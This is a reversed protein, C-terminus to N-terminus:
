ICVSFCSHWFYSYYSQRKYVDKNHCNFFFALRPAFSDILLGRSLAAEIYVLGNLLTFAIEQAATCGAERMHYGSISIPNWNKVNKSCFEIIDTSIELSPSPAFIYTGRAIFEKLLDNQVTGKLQDWSIGRREAAVLYFALVIHATANITMSTSINELPICDFLAEMDEVSDIAVGTRGVEGEALLDDSDLGMQTPLDFAVSLGTAGTEILYRFRKNTEFVSGFGSYQRITWTKGRYMDPHIGRVYPFEGPDPISENVVGIKAPYFQHLEIGDSTARKSNQKKSPAM